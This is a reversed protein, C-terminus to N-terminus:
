SRLFSSFFQLTSYVCINLKTFRRAIFFIFSKNECKFIEVKVSDLQLSNLTNKIHIFISKDGITINANGSIKFEIQGEYRHGEIINIM